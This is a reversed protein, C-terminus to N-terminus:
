KKKNKNQEFWENILEPEYQGLDCKKKRWKNFKYIKILVEEETYLTPEKFDIRTPPNFNRKM